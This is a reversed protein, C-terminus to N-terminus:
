VRSTSIVVDFPPTAVAARARRSGTAVTSDPGAPPTANTQVGDPHYQRSDYIPAGTAPDVGALGGGGVGGTPGGPSGNSGTGGMVGQPGAGGDIIGPGAASGPAGTGVQIKQGNSLTIVGNGTSAVTLGM